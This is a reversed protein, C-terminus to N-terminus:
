RGGLLGSNDRSAPTGILQGIGRGYDEENLLKFGKMIDTWAYSGPVFLSKPNELSQPIYQGMRSLTYKRKSEDAGLTQGLSAVDSMLGVAPGGVFLMTAPTQVWRWMDFGLVKGTAFTTANYIAM